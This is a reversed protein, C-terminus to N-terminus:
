MRSGHPEREMLKTAKMKYLTYVHPPVPITEHTKIEVWAIWERSGVHFRELIMLQILMMTMM